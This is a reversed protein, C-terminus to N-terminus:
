FYELALGLQKTHKHHQDDHVCALQCAHACISPCLSLCVCIIVSPCLRPCVCIIVSPCLCTNIFVKVMDRTRMVPEAESNSVRVCVCVCVCVM